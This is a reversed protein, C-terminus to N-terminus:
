CMVLAKMDFWFSILNSSLKGGLPATFLYTTIKELLDVM